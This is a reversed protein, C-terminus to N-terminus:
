SCCKFRFHSIFVDFSTLKVGFEHLTHPTAQSVSSCVTPVGKPIEWCSRNACLVVRLEPTCTEDFLMFLVVKPVWFLFGLSLECLLLVVVMWSRNSRSFFSGIQVTSVVCCSELNRLMRWDLRSVCHPMCLFFDLLMSASHFGSLFFFPRGTLTTLLFDVM